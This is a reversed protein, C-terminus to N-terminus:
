LYVVSTKVILSVIVPMALQRSCLGSVTLRLWSSRFAVKPLPVALSEASSPPNVLPNEVHHYTWDSSDIGAPGLVRRITADRLTDHRSSESFTDSPHPILNGYISGDSIKVISTVTFEVPWKNTNCVYLDTESLVPVYMTKGQSDPPLVLIRAEMPQVLPQILSLSVDVSIFEDISTIQMDIRSRSHVTTKRDFEFRRVRRSGREPKCTRCLREANKKLEANRFSARTGVNNCRSCRLSICSRDRATIPPFGVLLLRQVVLDMRALGLESVWDSVGGTLQLSATQSDLEFFFFRTHVVLLALFLFSEQSLILNGYTKVIECYYVQGVAFRDSFLRFRLLDADEPLVREGNFKLWQMKFRKSFTSRACFYRLVSSRQVIEWLRKYITVFTQQFTSSFFNTDAVLAKNNDM